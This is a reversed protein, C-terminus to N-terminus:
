AQGVTPRKARWASRDTAASWANPLSLGTDTTIQEVWCRRPRGRPRRWTGLQGLGQRTTVSIHLAQHAPAAQDMRRVHGFLAHRRQSITDIISLRASEENRVFDYRHIGLIRRQNIVQFGQLKVVSDKFLTWTESAYLLVSLVCSSYIRFKTINSLRSQRWVRDLQSMVSSALGIRRLIEPTCYGSSVVDSGLYTFRDNAEM